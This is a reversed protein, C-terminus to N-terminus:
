APQQKLERERLQILVARLRPDKELTIALAFPGNLWSTRRQPTPATRLGRVAGWYNKLRDDIM